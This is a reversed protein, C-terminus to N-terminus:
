EGEKRKPPESLSYIRQPNGDQDLLYKASAEEDDLVDKLEAEEMVEEFMRQIDRAFNRIGRVAKGVARLVVPIDSPRIFLVVALAVLGMEALSFDFM